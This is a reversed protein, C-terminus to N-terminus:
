WPMWSGARGMTSGMSYSMVSMDRVMAAISANLFHLEGSIQGLMRESGGEALWQRFSNSDQRVRTMVIGLDVLMNSTAKLLPAMFADPQLEAVKAPEYVPAYHGSGSPDPRKPNCFYGISFVGLPNNVRLKTVTQNDPDFIEQCTQVEAAVVQSEQQAQLLADGWAASLMMGSEDTVVRLNHVLAAMDDLFQVVRDNQGMGPKLQELAKSFQQLSTTDPAAVAYGLPKVLVLLTIAVISLGALAGWRIIRELRATRRESAALTAGLQTVIAQLEDLQETQNASTKM